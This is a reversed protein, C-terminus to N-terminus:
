SLPLIYTSLHQSFLHTFHLSTVLFLPSFLVFSRKIHEADGDFRLSFVFVGRRGAGDADMRLPIVMMMFESDTSRLRRVRDMDMSASSCVASVWFMVGLMGCIGSIIRTTGRRKPGVFMLTKSPNKKKKTTTTLPKL